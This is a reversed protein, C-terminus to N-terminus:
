ARIDLNSGKSGDHSEKKSKKDKEKNKLRASKPSDSVKKPKLNFERMIEPALKGAGTPDGEKLIKPIQDARGILVQMDPFKISM